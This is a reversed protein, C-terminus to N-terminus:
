IVGEVLGEGERLWIVGSASNLMWASGRAAARIRERVDGVGEEVWGGKGDEADLGVVGRKGVARGGLVLGRGRVRRGRSMVFM